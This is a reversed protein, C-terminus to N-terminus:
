AEIEEEDEEDDEDLFEETEDYDDFEDVEERGGATRVVLGVLLAIVLGIAVFPLPEASIDDMLSLKNANDGKGDNNGDFQETPDWPFHDEWDECTTCVGNADLVYVAPDPVGDNDDDPDLANCVGDGKIVDPMDDDTGYIGDAGPDTENDTPFVAANNPDGVGGAANRCLVETTDLWGDGDDDNDANDGTGDGDLDRYEAPNMPFDDDIDLVGDNDDDQDSIDCDHDMDNDAPVSNADMPDTGCNPEEDDLWGDNDDDSDAYDGLGDGDNDAFESADFPFADLTDVVGDGDDDTDLKDCIMDGDYDAPISDADLSDSGCDEEEQDTWADGDDNLDANNGIGDMDTDYWETIDLPFADAADSFGDNDDDLDEVLNTVCDAVLSDPYGDGDTDVAACASLPFADDDNSVGDGDIDDDNVDCIGDGDSDIPVNTSVLPDSMCDVEHTDLYGDNDDDSDAMLTTEFVSNDPDYMYASANETWGPHIEDPYEDGDTNVSAGGDAPYYDVDNTVGDGDLDLDLPDCIGDMDMDAPFSAADFADTLCDTEDDNLWGDGDIDDDANDGINDGDLDGSENQDFPFQDLTDDIGDNDDDPDLEDCIGDADNDPPYSTNDLPDYTAGTTSAAACDTEETDLWTDGDTDLTFIYYSITYWGTTEDHYTNARVYLAVIEGGTFSASNNTGVDDPDCDYCSDLFSGTSSYLTMSYSTSTDAYMTIEIGYDQPVDFNYFDRYDLASHAWGTFTHNVGVTSNMMLGDDCDGYLLCDIYIDPADSCTGADDDACPLNAIDDWEIDIQYEFDTDGVM